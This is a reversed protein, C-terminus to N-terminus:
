NCPTANSIARSVVKGTVGVLDIATKYSSVTSLIEFCIPVTGTGLRSFPALYIPKTIDFTSGTGLQLKVTGPMIGKIDPASNTVAAGTGVTQASLTYSKKDSAITLKYNYGFRRVLTRVREISQAFSTQGERVAQKDRGSTFSGIALATIIGLAAIVVLAELLTFGQISRMNDGRRHSSVQEAFRSRGV